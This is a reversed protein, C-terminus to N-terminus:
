KGTEGIWSTQEDDLSLEGGSNQVAPILITPFAVIMGITLLLLNKVSSAIVQLLFLGCNCVYRRTAM